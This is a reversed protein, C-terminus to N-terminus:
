TGIECLVKSPTNWLRLAERMNESTATILTGTAAAKKAAARPRYFFYAQFANILNRAFFELKGVVM